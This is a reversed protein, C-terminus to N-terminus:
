YSRAMDATYFPLRLPSGERDSLFEYEGGPFILIAPRLKPKIEKSPTRAYVNLYGGSAGNRESKFYDYLDIQKEIM